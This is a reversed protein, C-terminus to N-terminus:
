ACFIMVEGNTNNEGNAYSQNNDWSDLIQGCFDDMNCGLFDGANWLKGSSGINIQHLRARLQM